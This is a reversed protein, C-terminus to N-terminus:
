IVYSCFQGGGARMLGNWSPRPCPRPRLRPCSHPCPGVVVHLTLLFLECQSGFHLVVFRL